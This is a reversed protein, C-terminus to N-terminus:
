GGTSCNRNEVCADWFCADRGPAIKWIRIPAQSPAIQKNASSRGTSPPRMASYLFAGMQSPDFGAFEPQTQLFALLQRNRAHLGKAPQQGFSMLFYALHEPSAIPLFDEPFYLSLPKARLSNRNPGLFSKDGLQDLKEFEKRDAAQLLAVLSGKLKSLAEEYTESQLADNCDWAQNSKDYWIGFKSIRGGSISGLFKTKYEIWYCFSDTEKGGAYQELTLHELNKLPFRQIFEERLRCHEDPMTKPNMELWTELDSRWNKIQMNM